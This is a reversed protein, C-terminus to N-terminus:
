LNMSYWHCYLSTREKHVLGIGFETLSGAVFLYRQISASTEPPDSPDKSLARKHHIGPLSTPASHSVAPIKFGRWFINERIMMKLTARSLTYVSSRYVAERHPECTSRVKLPILSKSYSAKHISQVAPLIEDNEPHNWRVKNLANIQKFGTYQKRQLYYTKSFGNTLFNRKGIWSM